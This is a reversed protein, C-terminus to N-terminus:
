PEMAPMGFYEFIQAGLFATIVSIAAGQMTLVM